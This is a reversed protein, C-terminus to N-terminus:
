YTDCCFPVALNDSVDVPIPVLPSVEVEDLGFKALVSFNAVEVLAREIVGFSSISPILLFGVVLLKCGGYPPVM